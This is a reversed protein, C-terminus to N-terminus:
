RDDYNNIIQYRYKINELLPNIEGDKMKYQWMYGKHCIGKKIAQWIGGVNFGDKVADSIADYEIISQGDYGFVARSNSYRTNYRNDCWELNNINNNQKNEDKHNVQPYNSDNPIFAGAVLRHVSFQKAKGNKSLTVRLYGNSNVSPKLIKNTKINRIRGNDSVQYNPYEIIEKWVEKM